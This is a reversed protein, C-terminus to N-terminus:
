GALRSVEAVIKEEDPFQGTELKSYIPKGDVSIEFRGGDSPVLEMVALRRKLGWLLKETL